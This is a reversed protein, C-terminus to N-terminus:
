TTQYVPSGCTRWGDSVFLVPQAIAIDDIPSVANPEPYLISILTRGLSTDLLRDCEDLVRRFTPQTEYLQRGVDVYQAGQGSFM